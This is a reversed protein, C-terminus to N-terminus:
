CVATADIGAKKGRAEFHLSKKRRSQSNTFSLSNSFERFGETSSSVLASWM